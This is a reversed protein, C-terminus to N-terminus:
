KKSNDVIRSPASSIICHPTSENQPYGEETVEQQAALAFLLVEETKSNGDSLIM